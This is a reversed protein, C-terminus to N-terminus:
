MSFLSCANARTIDAIVGITCDHIEALKAAVHVVWAPENRKGRHPVPTLYPCDTEILLREVPVMRAAERVQDANNFTLIGSFSVM